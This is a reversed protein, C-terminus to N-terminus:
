KHVAEFCGNAATALSDPAAAEGKRMPAQAFQVAV